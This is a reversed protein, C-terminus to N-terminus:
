RYSSHFLQKATVVHEVAVDFQFPGECLGSVVAASSVNESKSAFDRSIVGAVM